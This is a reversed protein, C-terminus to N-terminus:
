GARASAVSSLAETSLAVITSRLLSFNGSQISYGLLMMLLLAVVQIYTNSSRPTHEAFAGGGGRECGKGQTQPHETSGMRGCTM